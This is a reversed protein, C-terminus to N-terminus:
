LEDRRTRPEHVSASTAPSASPPDNEVELILRQREIHVRIKAGVAFGADEL